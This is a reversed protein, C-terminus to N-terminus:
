RLDFLQAPQKPGDQATEPAPPARGRVQLAEQVARRADTRPVDREERLDSGLPLARHALQGGLETERQGGRASQRAVELLVVEDMPSLRDLVLAAGDDVQVRLAVALDLAPELPAVLREAVREGRELLL